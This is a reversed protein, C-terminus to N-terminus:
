SKMYKLQHFGHGKMCRFSSLLVEKPRFRRTFAMIPLVGSRGGGGGGWVCVGGGGGVGGGSMWVCKM